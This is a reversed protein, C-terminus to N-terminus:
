DNDDDKGIKEQMVEVGDIKKSFFHTPSPPSGYQLTMSIPQSMM